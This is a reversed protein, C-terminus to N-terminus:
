KNELSSVSIDFLIRIFDRSCHLVRIIHVTKDVCKYFAYYNGCVLYRYDTMIHIRSTLPVGMNPQEQLMRIKKTITGTVSLGTDPDGSEKEIYSRIELLDNRAEPAVVLNYM